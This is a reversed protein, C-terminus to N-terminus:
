EGKVSVSFDVTPKKEYCYFTISGNSTVARDLYGFAKKQAKVTAASPSGSIYLAIIPTDSSEVGSVNRSQTYPASSSWGSATLSVMKVTKIADVQENVHTELDSFNQTMTQQFQDTDQLVEAFGDVTENVAKNTANIDDSNFIDGIQTYQTVDDLSITGDANQVMEYKRMGAFIDNKYDERLRNM